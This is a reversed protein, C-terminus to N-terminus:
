GLEGPEVIEINDQTDVLLPQHARMFMDIGRQYSQKRSLM